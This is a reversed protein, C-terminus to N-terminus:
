KTENIYNVQYFAYEDRCHNGCYPIARNKLRLGIQTSTGSYVMFKNCLLCSSIYGSLYYATFKTGTKKIRYEIRNNIKFDLSFFCDHCYVNSNYNLIIGCYIVNAGPPNPQPDFFTKGCNKCFINKEYAKIVSPPNYFNM